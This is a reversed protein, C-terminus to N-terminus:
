TRCSRHSPRGDLTIRAGHEPGYLVHGPLMSALPSAWAVALRSPGQARRAQVRLGPRVFPWWARVFSCFHPAISSTTLRGASTQSLILRSHLIPRGPAHSCQHGLHGPRPRDPLSIAHASIGMIARLVVRELCLDSVNICSRIQGISEFSKCRVAPGYMLTLHLSESSDLALFCSSLTVILETCEIIALVACVPQALRPPNNPDRPSPLATRPTWPFLHRRRLM